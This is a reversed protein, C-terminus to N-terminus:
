HKFNAYTGIKLSSNTGKNSEITDQSITKQTTKKKLISPAGKGGEKKNENKLIKFAHIKM